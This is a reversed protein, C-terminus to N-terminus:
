GRRSWANDPVHGPAVAVHGQVSSRTLCTYGTTYTHLQRLPASAANRHAHKYEARRTRGNPHRADASQQSRASVDNFWLGNYAADIGQQQEQQNIPRPCTSTPTIPGGMRALRLGGAAGHRRWGTHCTCRQARHQARPRTRLGPLAGGRPSQLRPYGHEQATPLLNARHAYGEPCPAGGTGQTARASAPTRPAPNPSLTGPQFCM